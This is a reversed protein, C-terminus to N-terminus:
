FATIDPREKWKDVDSMLKSSLLILFGCLVISIIYNIFKSTKELKKNNFEM